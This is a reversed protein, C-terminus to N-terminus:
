REVRTKRGFIRPFFDPSLMLNQNPRIFHQLHVSSNLVPVKKDTEFRVFAQHTINALKKKIPVAKPSNVKQRGQFIQVPM